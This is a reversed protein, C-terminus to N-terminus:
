DIAGKSKAKDSVPYDRMSFSTKGELYFIYFVMMEAPSYDVKMHELNKSPFVQADRRVQDDDPQPVGISLLWAREEKQLGSDDYKETLYAVHEGLDRFKKLLGLFRQSSVTDNYWSSWTTTISQYDLLKRGINQYIQQKSLRAELGDEMTGDYILRLDGELMEREDHLQRGWERPDLYINGQPRRPEENSRRIM